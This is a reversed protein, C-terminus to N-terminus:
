MLHYCWITTWLTLAIRTSNLESHKYSNQLKTRLFAQRHSLLKFPKQVISHHCQLYCASDPFYDPIIYSLFLADMCATSSKFFIGPSLFNMVPPFILVKSLLFTPFSYTAYILREIDNDDTLRFHTNTRMICSYSIPDWLTDTIDCNFGTSSLTPNSSSPTPLNTPPLSISITYRM